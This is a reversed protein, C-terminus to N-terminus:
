MYHVALNKSLLVNNLNHWRNDQYYWITALWRGYKDRSDKSTNIVINCKSSAVDMIVKKAEFALAKNTIDPDNIEFTNIDALRFRDKHSIRFGLDVILDVTDGDVVKDIVASYWYKFDYM